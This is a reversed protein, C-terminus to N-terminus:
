FLENYAGARHQRYIHQFPYAGTGLGSAYLANKETPTISITAAGNSTSYDTAGNLLGRESIVRVRVDDCSLDYELRYQQISVLRGM